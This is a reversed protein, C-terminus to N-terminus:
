RSYIEFNLAGQVMVSGARNRLLARTNAISFKASSAVNGIRIISLILLPRSFTLGSLSLPLYCKIVGISPTVLNSLQGIDNIAGLVPTLISHELNAAIFLASKPSGIGM